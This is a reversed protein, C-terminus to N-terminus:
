QAGTSLKSSDLRAKIDLVTNKVVAVDIKINNIDVQTQTQTDAKVELAGLRSNTNAFWIVLSALFVLIVWNEQLKKLERDLSM